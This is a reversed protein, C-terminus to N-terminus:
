KKTYAASAVASNTYGTAIAIAKITEASTVSIPATYKTSSATPTTGNTTYRITAGTTTDSITVSQPLTIAGAAPSFTPTAAIAQTYAASAVASSTYGTAVAIAKITEASTVSIATTYTTSSATPTTGNTTYHIVAGTTTDSITVSQPFVVAGAAPSITPTAAIAQTYATSAVASNLYGTAIAIAKITEAATVSIAKTYKASITTPTSGNTTYYITAGTTTDSLTVSQPFAVAGAAPSFTPTAVVAQTYAASAVASNAYGTAIAIAKITEASTVSIATTYTASGAIPTSGNTTYHIVAGATTDAITVSQPFAVAGAAPSITPTAATAQTYAASGVASNTYGTAIAIAKITEASTVSIPATYKTSSATPASGNTTYRITAGTTTDSLTVLQPFPVAGAAPSFSPTAATPPTSITQTLNASSSPAFAAAGAYAASVTHTGLALSSTAYTAAGSNLSKTAVVASDITFAVNGTPAATGTTPTVTATFTVAQGAPQPNASSTLATSTSAIGLAIKTVFGTGFDAFTGTLPAKNTSQYAGTTVPYDLSSANGTLYVNGSAGLAIATFGDGAGSGDNLGSGGLYTSYLLAAGTPNLEALIGVPAANAFANNTSQIAGPTVPYDPSVSLGVVYADGQADIAIADGNEQISGGLFTSYDLATGSPNLKSVFANLSGPLKVQYANNTTPFDPSRVIGTVFAAGTSDVAIGLAADGHKNTANGSGGLYTSYVLASGTPNFATVFANDTLLTAAKNTSQFANKTVPFDSSYTVGAVYVQGAPGIAIANAWDGANNSNGSGGLYTSFVLAAGTPNLESVFATRTTNKAGPFSTQYAGTTTPFKKSNTWGTVFADGSNDIAIAGAWGALDGALYTSYILATGTPNLKTVFGGQAGAFTTQFAGSTVPFDAAMTYGAIYADGKSDVAIGSAMSWASGNGGTSPISGSLYTSYVLATGTSNLKTVFTSQDDTLTDLDKAQFAGTTTPFDLSYTYGALYTNGSSDVAIGAPYDGSTGGLFTSYSLIPDIVLPLSRNYRGLKFTVTNHALLQFQGAISQDGRDLHQYVRPKQFAITRHNGQIQLNGRADLSLKNAPAFQLRISAPDAQPAVLFDYELQRQNGYYVLDIGPYVSPYRVKRYTPINSRWKAPNSGVFYNVVGPLQDAGSPTLNPNAGALQMRFTAAHHLSPTAPFALVAQSGTLFLTYASTRSTFRVQSNTQGQNAEFSLPLKAYSPSAPHSITRATQAALFHVPILIAAAAAALRLLASKM